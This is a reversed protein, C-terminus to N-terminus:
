NRRTRLANKAAQVPKNPRDDKTVPQKATTTEEIAGEDFFETYQKKQEPNFYRISVDVPINRGTFASLKPELKPTLYNGSGVFTIRFMDAVV